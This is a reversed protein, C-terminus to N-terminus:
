VFSWKDLSDLIEIFRERKKIKKIPVMWAALSLFVKLFPWLVSTLCIFIALAYSKANWLEKVSSIISVTLIENVAFLSGDPAILHTKAAVGSSIDAVLLFILTVILFAPIGFRWGVHIDPNRFHAPLKTSATV